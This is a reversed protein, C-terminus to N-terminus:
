LTHKQKLFLIRHLDTTACVTFVLKDGMLAAEREKILALDRVGGDYERGLAEHQQRVVEISHKLNM